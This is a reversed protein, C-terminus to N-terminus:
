KGEGRITALEELVKRKNYLAVKPGELPQHVDRTFYGNTFFFGKTSGASKVFDKFELLDTLKALPNDPSTTLFCLVYTGFFFENSSEATWYTEHPSNNMRDKITLNNKRCLHEGVAFLDEATVPPLKGGDKEFDDEPPVLPLGGPTKQRTIFVALSLAIFISFGVIFFISFM